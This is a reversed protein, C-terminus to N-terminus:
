AHTAVHAIATAAPLVIVTLTMTSPVNAYANWHVIATGGLTEAIRVNPAHGLGPIAMM